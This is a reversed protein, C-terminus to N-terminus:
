SLYKEHPEYHELCGEAYFEIDQGFALRIQELILHCIHQLSSWEIVGEEYQLCFQYKKDTYYIGWITGEIEVQGEGQGYNIAKGNLSSPILKALDTLSDFEIKNKDDILIRM